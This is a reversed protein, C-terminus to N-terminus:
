GSNASLYGLIVPSQQLYEFLSTVGDLRSDYIGFTPSHPYTGIEDTYYDITFAGVSLDGPNNDAVVGNEGNLTVQTGDSIYYAVKGGAVKSASDVYAM